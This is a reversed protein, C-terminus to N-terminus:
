YNKKFELHIDPNENGFADLPKTLVKQKEEESLRFGLLKLCELTGHPGEGGYGASVGSILVASGNSFVRLPYHAESDKNAPIGYLCNYDIKALFISNVYIVGDQILKKLGKIALETRYEDIYVRKHEFQPSDLIIKISM